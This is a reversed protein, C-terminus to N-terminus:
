SITELLIIDSPTALNQLVTEFRRYRPRMLTGKGEPKGLFICKIAEGRMTVNEV